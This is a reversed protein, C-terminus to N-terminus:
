EKLFFSSIIIAIFPFISFIQFLLSFDGRILILGGLIGGCFLSLGMGIATYISVALGRYESSTHKTILKMMCLHNLGFSFSHVVQILYLPLLTTAMSYIQMRSIGAILCVIWLTRLKFKRFLYTSFFFLPIEFIPGIAWFGSVNDIHFNNKLLLSFFTYHGSLSLSSLFAISLGIWYVRPFSGASKLFSKHESIDQNKHIFKRPLFLSSILALSLFISYGTFITLPRNGQVWNTIYILFASFLFGMSGGLRIKGYTEDPNKVTQGFRADLLSTTSKVFFGMILTLPILTLLSNSRTIFFLIVICILGITIIVKGPSKVRDYFHGIIMLGAISFLDYSGVLFGVQSPILGKAQLLLPFFPYLAAVAAFIFFYTATYEKGYTKDKIM